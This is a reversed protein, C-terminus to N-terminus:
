NRIFFLPFYPDNAGEWYPEYYKQFDSHYFVRYNEDNLEPPTIQGDATFAVHLQIVKPKLGFVYDLDTQEPSHAILENNLGIIDIIQRDSYYALAGADVVAIVDEADTYERLWEGGRVLGDTYEGLEPGFPIYLFYAMAIELIVAGISLGLSVGHLWKETPHLAAAALPSFLLMVPVIYRFHPMWDPGSYIVFAFFGGVVSLFLSWERNKYLKNTFVTVIGACVLLTFLPRLQFYSALWYLAKEVNEMTPDLKVVATNPLLYGYTTYRWLLFLGYTLLFCLGFPLISKVAERKFIVYYGIFIVFLIIGEPRTLAALLCAVVALAPRSSIAYYIFLIVWLSMFMTELGGMTWVTFPASVAIVLLSLFSQLFNMQPFLYKNVREAAFLALTGCLLSIIRSVVFPDFGMWILPAILVTWLFNSYGEVVMGNYTLGNGSILNKSYTFSIYADDIKYQHYCLAMPIFFLAVLLFSNSKFLQVARMHYIGKSM